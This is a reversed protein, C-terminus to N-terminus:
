KVARKKNLFLVAALATASLGMVTVAMYISDGTKPNTSDPTSTSATKARANTVMVNIHVYGDEKLDVINDITESKTDTIFSGVWNGVALYLGDINIGDSNKATYYTKVVTRVDTKVDVKGDAAIWDTININMDPEDIKNNLFVHLYVKNSNLKSPKNTNSGTNGNSGTNDNSANANLMISLTDGAYIKAGTGVKAQQMTSWAHSFTYDKAWDSNWCYYLLNEVLAYEGNAPVKAGTWIVNDSSGSKVVIQIPAVVVPTEEPKQEPKQEPQQEPKQEPQQVPPQEAAAWTINARIRVKDGGVLGDAASVDGKTGDAYYAYANLFEASQADATNKVWWNLLDGVKATGYSPVKDFRAVEVDTANDIVVVTVAGEASAQFPFVSILMVLALAISFFKKMANKM